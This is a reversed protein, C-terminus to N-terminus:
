GDEIGRDTLRQRGRTLAGVIGQEPHLLVLSRGDPTGCLLTDDLPGLQTKTGDPREVELDLCRGLHALERPWARVFVPEFGPRWPVYCEVPSEYPHFYLSERKDTRWKDSGYVITTAYGVFALRDPLHVDAIASVFDPERGNFTKYVTLAKAVQGM